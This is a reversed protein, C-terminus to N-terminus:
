NKNLWCEKRSNNWIGTHVWELSISHVLFVDWFSGDIIVPAPKQQGILISSYEDGGTSMMEAIIITQLILPFITLVTRHATNHMVTTCLSVCM